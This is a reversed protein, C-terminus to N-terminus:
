GELTKEFGARRAASIAGRQLPIRFPEPKPPPKRVRITKIKETKV